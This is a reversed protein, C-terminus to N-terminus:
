SARRVRKISCGFAKTETRAVARGAQLEDLAARLGQFRIHAPNQSDDIAGHYLIVGAKDILYTEPTVQAGFRDAVLNGADKYVPFSFGHSAAHAAVEAAPETSNANIFIFRVGRPVYDNYLAQMRENYANSVPCQTAIFVVVTLDGRLDSFKVPDGKLDQITFNAVTSGLRFEQGYLAAAAFVALGLSLIRQM